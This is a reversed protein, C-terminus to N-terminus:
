SAREYVWKTVTGDGDTNELTLVGEALSWRQTRQMSGMKMLIVLKDGDWKATATIQGQPTTNVTESGDLKYTRTQTGKSSEGQISLTDPTQKVTLVEPGEAKAARADAMRWKGSFDPKQQSGAAIAVLMAVVLVTSTHRM